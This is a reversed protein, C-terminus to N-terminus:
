RATGALAEAVWAPLTQQSKEDHASVAKRVAVLRGRPDVLMMTPYVSVGLADIFDRADPVIDWAFGRDRAFRASEEADDFTVALVAVDTHERQFANLEPIAEICSSMRLFPEM